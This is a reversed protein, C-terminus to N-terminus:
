SAVQTFIRGALTEAEQGQDSTPKIQLLKRMMRQFLLLEERIKFPTHDPFPAFQVLRAGRASTKQIATALQAPKLIVPDLPNYFVYKEGKLSDFDKKVDMDFQLVHAGLRLIAPIFGQVNLTEQIELGLTSFSNINAAKIKKESYKEQILNAGRTTNAAGMSFGTFAIDEPDIGKEHILYEAATYIDLAYGDEYIPGSSNGIGRSNVFFISANVDKLLQYWDHTEWRQSNGGVFLVAKERNKGPFFACNLTAGDPAKISVRQGEYKELRYQGADRAFDERYLNPLIIRFVLKRLYHIGLRVLGIPFIVISIVNWFVKGVKCILSKLSPDLQKPWQAQFPDAKESVPVAM